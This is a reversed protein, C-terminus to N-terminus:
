IRQCGMNAPSFYGLEEVDSLARTYRTQRRELPYLLVAKAATQEGARGNEALLALRVYMAQVAPSLQSLPDFHVPFLAGM